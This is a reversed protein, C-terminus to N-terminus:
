SYNLEAAKLREVKEERGNMANIFIRYTDSEFIGLFEYTLIEEGLDDDIIALNTEEISVHDNLFNKAEELTLKPQPITREHHNKFYDKATVGLVDGNDLAIKIDIHDPHIRVDDQEYIFSYVGINNLESSELLIMQDFKFDDLYQEAALLGDHLSLTKQQIDRNVLLTLPYGGQVTLDLYAALNNNQYGLTYMPVDAGDGSKSIDIEHERSLNFIELAKEIAEDETLRDGTLFDYTESRTSSGIISSDVQSEAYEGVQEEVTQFGDIITNDMPEDETALALQVDMWRLNESLVINQVQRLETQIQAAQEYLSQLSDFEQNTLPDEDLDRVATRYTFEGIDSLFSETKNFPLLSLPLQGVNALAESTLRWIDVLQPSLRENSSVALAVGIQDHLLDMHYTLEHFARQYTNEAQILIKNKEQHEQYGWLAAGFMGLSLVIITLWRLM